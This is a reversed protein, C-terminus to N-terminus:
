PSSLSSEYFKRSKIRLIETMRRTHPITGNTVPLTAVPHGWKYSMTWGYMLIRGPRYHLSAVIFMTPAVFLQQELHGRAQQSLLKELAAAAAGNDDETARSRARLAELESQAAKFEAESSFVDEDCHSCRWPTSFNYEAAPTHAASRLSNYQMLESGFTCHSKLVSETDHWTALDNGEGICPIGDDGPLRQRGEKGQCGCLAAGKGRIGRMGRVAALNLCCRISCRVRSGDLLDLVPSSYLQEIEAALCTESMADGSQSLQRKHHLM